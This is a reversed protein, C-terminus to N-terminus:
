QQCYVFLVRERVERELYEKGPVIKGETIQRSFLTFDMTNRLLKLDGDISELESPFRNTTDSYKYMTGTGANSGSGSVPHLYYLPAM